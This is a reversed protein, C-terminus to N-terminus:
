NFTLRKQNIEMAYQDGVDAQYNFKVTFNQNLVEDHMVEKIIDLDYTDKTDIWLVGHQWFMNPLARDM